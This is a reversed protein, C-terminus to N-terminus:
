KKASLEMDADFTSMWYKTCLTRTPYKTGHFRLSTPMWARGSLAHSRWYTTGKLRWHVVRCELNVPCEAFGSVQVLKSRLATLAASPVHANSSVANILNRGPLCLVVEQTNRINEYTAREERSANPGIHLPIIVNPIHDTTKVSATSLIDVEGKGPAQTVVFYLPSAPICMSLAKANNSAHLEAEDLFISRDTDPATPVNPATQEKPLLQGSLLRSDWRHLIPYYTTTTAVDQRLLRTDITAGIVTGVAVAYTARPIDKIYTIKCELNVPCEAVGPPAILRSPLETLEAVELENIGRPAGMSAVYMKDFLERSPIAIVVEGGDKLNNYTHRVEQVGQPINWIHFLVELPSYSTISLTGVMANVYGTSSEVTVAIYDPCPPQCFYWVKENEPVLLLDKETLFIKDREM